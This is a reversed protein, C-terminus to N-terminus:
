NSTILSTLCSPDSISLSLERDVPRSKILTMATRDTGLPIVAFPKPMIAMGVGLLILPSNLSSSGKDDSIPQIEM